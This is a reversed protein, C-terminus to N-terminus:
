SVYLYRGLLGFIPLQQLTSKNFLVNSPNIDRHVIERLHIYELASLLQVVYAIMDKATLTNFYDRFPTANAFFPFVLFVSPIGTVDDVNGVCAFLEVVYLCGQVAYLSQMERRINSGCSLFLKRLAVDHSVSGSLIASGNVSRGRCNVAFINAGLARAHIVTGFTGKGVVGLLDFYDTLSLFDM